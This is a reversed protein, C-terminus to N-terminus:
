FEILVGASPVIPLLKESYNAAVLNSRIFGDGPGYNDRNTVNMIEVFLTLRSREFTFTRSGSLDLRAYAPLRVRNRETGLRLADHAGELYGILPFNSGYRFRASVRMRWSLRQQVFVNLTHRQDYDGDFREGTVRDRYDTHAWTYAVWGTPGREARREVTVDVGRSTGELSGAVSPFISEVIRTSGDLRNESVRRITDSENRRFVMVGAGLTPALPLRAGADVLWAREAPLPLLAAAWQDISPYQVVRSASLALSIRGATRDVMVWPSAQTGNSLTDHTVRVGANVGVGATRGGIGVFGGGITRHRDSAREARIRTTTANATSFNRLTTATHQREANGGAEMTWGGLPLTLDARWLVNTTDGRAQEQWYLGRNRFRNTAVSLRQSMLARSAALRWAASVLTSASAARKIENAGDADLKYYTANGGLVLVQVQQRPTLDYVVKAQADIFGITSDIQSDIKRVLWDVYSKRLSVLWSGRRGRTLPGEVVTSANTGSVAGRIAVRDRSGERVDFELTAGLWNGHRAPHPGIQLSARSVIDTNLMAISGTDETGRVAHFLLPTAVGDIVLGVHRYASGRVSFEAQFDDGTAVGPLAQVARVPDDAAVGRLEQLAGSSLERVQGLPMAPPAAVVDVSEEYTGTGEALPVALDLLGGAPIEIRRRVFIYGITSVTLSAAGAPLRPLEFRGAADTRTALAQDPWTARIANSEPAITIQVDPLPAGTRASTVIGALRGAAVPVPTQGASALILIALLPATM